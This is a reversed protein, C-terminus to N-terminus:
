RQQTEKSVLDAEKGPPVHNGVAEEEEAGRDEAVEGMEEPAITLQPPAPLM